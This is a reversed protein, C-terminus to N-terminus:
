SGAKVPLIITFISGKNLQSDVVIKGGLNKIIGYSVSLGLGTGKGVRKTTYFPLFIRSMQEKTMGKGTDSISIRIKNDDMSTRITIKGPPTIADVSNKLINLLVQNLQNWDCIINPIDEGFERVIEINSTSMEREFFGNVIADILQHADFPKLKVETKRVFSLLKRTIDRGRFVAEYITDLHPAFDEPKPNMNFEPNMMDKMLGVKESIIALPNNIEHAVGAALEGVSALKAAHELQAGTVDRERQFEVMKKARSIIVAFIIVFILISFGIINLQTGSFLQSRQREAWQVIIAWDATKLWSYAYNHSVGDIKVKENGLKETQPPIISSTELPTGVHPTVLQYYGDQNVISTFVEDSGALSTIYAYFKEPDLTARLVAYQGDIVRSVALTFHPKRRFGLYIDTIIFNVESENLQIFWSEGSYDKKELSPYPGAYAYQVGSSDFYGVDIFTDSDKRLEDLLEQMMESSPPIQLKPDDIQNALNVLRERLFLDLMNSQYEAISKLHLLRGEQSIANYQFHFYITLLILPVLYTIFLRLVNKRQLEKYHKESLLSGPASSKTDNDSSQAPM